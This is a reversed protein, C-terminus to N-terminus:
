TSVELKEKIFKKVEEESKTKEDFRLYTIKAEYKQLEEKRLYKFAELKLKSYADDIYPIIFKYSPELETELYYCFDGWDIIIYEYDMSEILKKLFKLYEEEKLSFIDSIHSFTKIIHLNEEIDIIKKLKLVNFNSKIYTYLIDSFSVRSAKAEELSTYLDFSIYLVKQERSLFHALQRCFLSKGIRNIPSYVSILKSKSTIGLMDIHELGSLKDLIKAQIVKYSQYKYIINEQNIDEIKNKIYREEVLFLIKNKDAKKIDILGLEVLELELILLIDEELDLISIKSLDLNQIKYPLLSNRNLLNTLRESYLIDKSVLVVKM